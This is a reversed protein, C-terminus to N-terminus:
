GSDLLIDAHTYERYICTNYTYLALTAVLVKKVKGHGYIKVPLTAKTVPM